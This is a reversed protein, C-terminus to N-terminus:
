IRLATYVLTQVCISIDLCNCIQSSKQGLMKFKKDHARSGDSSDDPDMDPSLASSTVM